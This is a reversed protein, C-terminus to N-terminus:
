LTDFHWSGSVNFFSVVDSAYGTSIVTARYQVVRLDVFMQPMSWFEAVLARYQLVHLGHSWM